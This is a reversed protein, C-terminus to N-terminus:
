VVSLTTYLLTVFKPLLYFTSIRKFCKLVSETATSLICSFFQVIAWSNMNRFFQFFVKHFFFPNLCLSNKIKSSGLVPSMAYNQNGKPDVNHQILRFVESFVSHKNNAFCLYDGDTMGVKIFNKAFDFGKWSNRKSEVITLSIFGISLHFYCVISFLM